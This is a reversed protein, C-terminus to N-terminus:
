GVQNIRDILQRLRGYRHADFRFVLRPLAWVAPDDREVRFAQRQMFRGERLIDAFDRDLAAIADAHLKRNLRLVLQDRVWRSSNYVRYYNTLEAVAEDLDSTVKYLTLDEESVLHRRLLDDKVYRHWNKWYTDGPPALFLLPMPQAKGTQVLTLTEFAEDQTGFGGPFSAVAHTEKLFFLKRTFFYKFLALKPDGHMTENVAQEFPLHIGVGFSRERGAGRQCAEMIGPGAGTIVMFGADAARRAFEEAFQYAPTGPQTRASGFTTVKKQDRYPAFTEFAIRLERLVTRAIKLDGISASGTLLAELEAIGEEVLRRARKTKPDIPRTDDTYEM